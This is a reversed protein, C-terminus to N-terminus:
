LYFEPLEEYYNFASNKTAEFDDDVLSLQTDTFLDPTKIVGLVLNHSAFMFHSNDPPTIIHDGKELLYNKGSVSVLSHGDMVFYIATEDKLSTEASSTLRRMDAIGFTTDPTNLYNSLQYYDGIGTTIPQVPSEGILKQWPQTKLFETWSNAILNIRDLECQELDRLLTEGSAM